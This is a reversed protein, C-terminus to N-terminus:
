TVLSLKPPEPTPQQRDHEVIVKLADVCDYCLYVPMGGKRLSVMGSTEGVSRSCGECTPNPPAGKSM